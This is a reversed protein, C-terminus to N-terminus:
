QEQVDREVTRLIKNITWSEGRGWMPLITNTKSEATGIGLVTGACQLSECCSSLAHITLAKVVGGLLTSRYRIIQMKFPPNFRNFMKPLKEPM